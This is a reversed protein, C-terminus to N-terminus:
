CLKTPPLKVLGPFFRVYSISGLSYSIRVGHISWPTPLNAAIRIRAVIDFVYASRKTTPLSRNIPSGMITRKALDALRFSDAIEGTPSRKPLAVMQFSSQLDSAYRIPAVVLRVDSIRLPKSAGDFVVSLGDGVECSNLNPLTYTWSASSSSASRLASIVSTPTKSAAAGSVNLVGTSIVILAVPMALFIRSMSGKLV